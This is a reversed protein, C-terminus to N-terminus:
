LKVVRLQVGEAGIAYHKEAVICVIRRDDTWIVGTLADGIARVLKDLDGVHSAPLEPANAKLGKANFHSRPRAVYFVMWVSVPGDILEGGWGVDRAAQAVRKRWSKLRKNTSTMVARKGIVFARM